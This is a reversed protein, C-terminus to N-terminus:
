SGFGGRLMRDSAVKVIAKAHLEGMERIEKASYFERLEKNERTYTKLYGERNQTVWTATSFATVDSFHEQYHAYLSEFTPM